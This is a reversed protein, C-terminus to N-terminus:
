DKNRLKHFSINGDIRDMANKKQEDTATAAKIEKSFERYVEEAKDVEGARYLAVMKHFAVESRFDLYDGMDIAEERAGYAKIVNDCWDSIRLAEDKEDWWSYNLSITYLIGSLSNFLLKENVKIVEKMKEFGGEFFALEMDIKEKIRSSSLSPLVNLHDRANDFDKTHIYIWTLAYHTKEKLNKDGCHGILYAGKRIADKFIKDIREDEGEYYNHLTPDAYMSLGATEQVYDKIVVFNGPNLNTETSLYECIKLKSGARDENDKMAAVAEEIRTTQAENESMNDYGLLADTTVGLVRALPILMSVDPCGMESEWKSVAQPTINLLVALEEQTFGKNKRYIKINKGLTTSM